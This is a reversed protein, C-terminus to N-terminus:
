ILVYYRWVQRHDLLQADSITSVCQRQHGSVKAEASLCQSFYRCVGRRHRRRQSWQCSPLFGGDQAHALSADIGMFFAVCGLVVRSPEEDEGEREGPSGESLEQIHDDSVCVDSTPPTLIDAQSEDLRYFIRGFAPNNGSKLNRRKTRGWAAGDPSTTQKDSTPFAGPSPLLANASYSAIFAAVANWGSAKYLKRFNHGFFYHARLLPDPTPDGTV